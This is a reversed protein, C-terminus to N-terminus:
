KHYGVLKSIRDGQQVLLSSAIAALGLNMGPLRVQFSPRPPSLGVRRTKVKNFAGVASSGYIGQSPWSYTSSADFVEKSTVTQSVNSLSLGAYDSYSRVVENVNVFMNVVFSWPVLDWAVVAPNILGLRNALWVNHNTIEVKAGISAVSEIQRTEVYSEYGSVYKGTYFNSSKGRTAIFEGKPTSSLVEMSSTIDSYLPLWGFVVELHNNAATKGIGQRKLSSESMAKRMMGYDSLSRVRSLVRGVQNLRGTVMSLTQGFSGLTVGLSADGKHLRNRFRSWAQEVAADDSQGFVFPQTDISPQGKTGKIPDKWDRRYTQQRREAYLENSRLVLQGKSDRPSQESRVYDRLVLHPGLEPELNNIRTVNRTVKFAM